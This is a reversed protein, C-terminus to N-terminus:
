RSAASFGAAVTVAVIDYLAERVAETLVEVIDWALVETM